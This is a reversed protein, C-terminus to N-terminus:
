LNYKNEDKLILHQKYELTDRIDIKTRNYIIDIYRQYIPNDVADYVLYKEEDNLPYYPKKSVLIVINAKQTNFIFSCYKVNSYNTSINGIHFARIHKDSEFVDDVVLYLQNDTSKLIDGIWYDKLKKLHKM